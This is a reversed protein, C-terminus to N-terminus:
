HCICCGVFGLWKGKNINFKHWTLCKPLDSADRIARIVMNGSHTTCTVGQLSEAPDQLTASAVFAIVDDFHQM